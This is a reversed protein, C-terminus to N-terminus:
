GWAILIIKACVAIWALTGALVAGRLAWREVTWSPRPGHAPPQEYGVPTLIDTVGDEAFPPM